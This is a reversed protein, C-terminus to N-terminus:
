APPTPRRSATARNCKAHEPGRYVTRDDDAHGLDWPTGPQIPQGCRWCNVQGAQVAPALNTRLRQHRPGYGRAHATGREREYATRCNPCRGTGQHIEPCNPESCVVWRLRM